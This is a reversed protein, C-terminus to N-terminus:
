VRLGGFGLGLIDLSKFESKEQLGKVVKFGLVRFGKDKLLRCSPPTCIATENQLILPGTCVPVCAVWVGFHNLTENPNLAYPKFCFM